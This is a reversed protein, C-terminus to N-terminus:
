KKNEIRQLYDRLAKICLEPQDSLTAHAADPIIILESNPIQQQFKKMTEPRAEDYEGVILLVPSKLEHLRQSRDYNKLNGTAMFESPGWMFNYISDNFPIGECEPIPVYPQRYLFHQYFVYAANQYESSNTTGAEENHWIIQRISDPLESLLIESDKMWIPTSLLPGGLIIARLAEPQYTLVYDTVISAGWSHGLLHFEDLNLYRILCNLEEVFREVHWNSTDMPHDSLGCDLQDYIIVKRENGLLALRSFGCSRAGPGGHVCVLPVKDGTGIVRYWIRGGPVNCYGTQESLKSTACGFLLILLFVFVTFIKKYLKL